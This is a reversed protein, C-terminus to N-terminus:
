EGQEAGNRPVRLRGDAFLEAAREICRRFVELGGIGGAVDDGIAATPLEGTSRAVVGPAMVIECLGFPEVFMGDPVVRDSYVGPTNSYGFVAKGQAYMYGMEVSTGVDMSPGRFPTMNVVALDCTDMLEVCIDFAVLGAETPALGGLREYPGDLPFVGVLGVEAGLQKKAAGVELADPLFVDPGALYVRPGGSVLLPETMSGDQDAAIGVLVWALNAFGIEMQVDNRRGHDWGMRVADSRHFVSHRLLSVLGTAGVGCRARAWRRQVPLICQRSSALTSLFRVPPESTVHAHM